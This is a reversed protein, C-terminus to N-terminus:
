TEKMEATAAAKSLIEM